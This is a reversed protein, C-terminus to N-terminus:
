STNRLLSNLDDETTNESNPQIELMGTQYEPLFDLYQIILIKWDYIELESKSPKRMRLLGIKDSHYLMLNIDPPVLYRNYKVIDQNIYSTDHWPMDLFTSILGKPDPLGEVTDKNITQNENTTTLTNQDRDVQTIVVASETNYETHGSLSQREIGISEITRSSQSRSEVFMEM